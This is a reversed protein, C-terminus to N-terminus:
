IGQRLVAGLRRHGETANVADDIKGEGVTDIRLQLSNADECLVFRIREVAM